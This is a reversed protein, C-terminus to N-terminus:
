HSTDPDIREDELFAVIAWCHMKTDIFIVETKRSSKTKRQHFFDKTKQLHFFLSTPAGDRFGNITPIGMPVMFSNHFEVDTPVFVIHETSEKIWIPPDDVGKAYDYQVSGLYRLVPLKTLCAKIEELSFEKFKYKM